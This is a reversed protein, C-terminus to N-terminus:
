KLQVPHSIHKDKSKHLLFSYPGLKSPWNRFTVVWIVCGLWGVSVQFENMTFRTDFVLKVEDYYGGIRSGIYLM